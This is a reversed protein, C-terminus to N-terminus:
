PTDIFLPVRSFNAKWQRIRRYPFNEHVIDLSSHLFFAYTAKNATNLDKALSQAHLAELGYFEKQQDSFLMTEKSQTTNLTDLKEGSERVFLHPIKEQNFPIIHLDVFVLRQIQKPKLPLYVLDRPSVLWTKNIPLVFSNNFVFMQKITLSPRFFNVVIFVYLLVLSTTKLFLFLIKSVSTKSTRQLPFIFLLYLSSFALTIQWLFYSGQSLFFEQWAFHFFVGTFFLISILSRTICPKQGFVKQCFLKKFDKVGWFLFYLTHLFIGGHLFLDNTYDKQPQKEIFFFDKLMIFFDNFTLGNNKQVFLAFLFMSLFTGMLLALAHGFHGQQLEGKHLAINNNFKKKNLVSFIELLLFLLSFLFLFLSVALSIFSSFVAISLFFAALVSRTGFSLAKTSFNSPLKQLAMIMLLGLLLLFIPLSFPYLFWPLFFLIFSVLLSKKFTLSFNRTLFFLGVLMCFLIPLYYFSTPLFFRLAFFAPFFSFKPNAYWANEYQYFFISWSNLKRNAWFDLAKLPWASPTFSFFVFFLSAIFFLLWLFLFKKRDYPKLFNM